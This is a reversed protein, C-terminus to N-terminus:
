RVGMYKHQQVNVRVRPYDLWNWKDIIDKGKWKQFVPMLFFAVDAENLYFEKYFSLADELDEDSGVVLKIQVNDGKWLDLFGLIKETHESWHTTKASHLKPSLSWLDVGVDILEKHLLSGNTEITVRKNMKKIAEILKSLLFPPQRMPEGGTLCVAQADSRLVEEVLDRLSVQERRFSKRTELAYATDCWVCDFNCGAFRIFTTMEGAFLGEGQVSDFVETVGFLM